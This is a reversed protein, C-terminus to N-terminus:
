IKLDIRGKVAFQMNYIIYNLIMHRHDTYTSCDSLRVYIPVIDENSGKMYSYLATTKGIGGEGVIILNDDSEMFDQLPRVNGSVDSVISFSNKLVDDDRQINIIDGNSLMLEDISNVYKDRLYKSTISINEAVNSKVWGREESSEEINHYNKFPNYDDSHKMNRSKNSTHVTRILIYSIVYCLDGTHLCLNAVDNDDFFLEDVKVMHLLKKELESRNSIKDFLNERLDDRLDEIWENTAKERVNKHFAKKKRLIDSVEDKYAKVKRSSIYYLFDTLDMFLQENSLSTNDQIISFFTTFDLFNDTSVKEEM